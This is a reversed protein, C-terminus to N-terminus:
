AATLIKGPAARVTPLCRARSSSTKLKEGEGQTIMKIDRRLRVSILTETGKQKPITLQILSSSPTSSSYFRFIAWSQRPFLRFLFLHAVRASPCISTYLDCTTQSRASEKERECVLCFSVLQIPDSKDRAHVEVRNRQDSCKIRRKTGICM